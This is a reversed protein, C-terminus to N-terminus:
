AKRLRQFVQIQLQALQYELSKVRQELERMTQRKCGNLCRGVAMCDGSAVTCQTHPVFVREGDVLTVRGM